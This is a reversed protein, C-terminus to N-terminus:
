MITLFSHFWILLDLFFFHKIFIFLPSITGRRVPVIILFISIFEDYLINRYHPGKEKQWKTRTIVMQTLDALARRSRKVDEDDSEPLSEIAEAALNAHKTALERAKQIGRSKGLYELAQSLLVYKTEYISYRWTCGHEFFSWFTTLYAVIFDFMQSTIWM